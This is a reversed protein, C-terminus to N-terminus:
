AAIRPPIPLRPRVSRPSTRATLRAAARDSWAVTPHRQPHSHFRAHLTKLLEVQRRASLAKPMSRTRESSATAPQLPPAPGANAAPQSTCLSRGPIRRIPPSTPSYRDYAAGGQTESSVQRFWDFIVAPVGPLRIINLGYSRSAVCTAPRFRRPFVGASTLAFGEAEQGTGM